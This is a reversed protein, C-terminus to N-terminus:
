SGGQIQQMLGLLNAEVWHEAIKGDVIRFVHLETWAAQKGTAPIGFQEGQHTATVHG